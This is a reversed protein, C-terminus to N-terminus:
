LIQQQMPAFEKFEEFGKFGKIAEPHDNGDV